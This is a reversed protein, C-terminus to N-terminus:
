MSSVRMAAAAILLPKLPCGGKPTFAVCGLQRSSLVDRDAQTEVPVWGQPHISCYANRSAGIHRQKALTEVPVWGQPHISSVCGWLAVTASSPQPKLPCGGKPTFAVTIKDM